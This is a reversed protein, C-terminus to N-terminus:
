LNLSIKKFRLNVVLEIGQKVFDTFFLTSKAQGQIHEPVPATKSGINIQSM